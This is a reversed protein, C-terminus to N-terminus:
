DEEVAEVRKRWAQDLGTWYRNNVKYGTMRTVYEEKPNNPIFQAEGWQIIGRQSMFKRFENAWFSQQKRKQRQYVAYTAGLFSIATIVTLIVTQTNFLTTM